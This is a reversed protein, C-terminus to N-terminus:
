TRRRRARWEGREMQNLHKKEGKQNMLSKGQPWQQWKKQRYQMRTAKQGLNNKNENGDQQQRDPTM